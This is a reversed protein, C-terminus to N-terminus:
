CARPEPDIASTSGDSATPCEAGCAGAGGSFAQFLKFIKAWNHLWRLRPLPRRRQLRVNRGVPKRQDAEPFAVLQRCLEVPVFKSSRSLSFVQEQKSVHLTTIKGTKEKKFRNSMFFLFSPPFFGCSRQQVELPFVQSRNLVTM